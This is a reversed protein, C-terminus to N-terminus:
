LKKREKQKEQFQIFDYINELPINKAIIKLNPTVIYLKPTSQIDYEKRFASQGRMDACTVWDKHCNKSVFTRFTSDTQETSVAFVGVGLAQLSDAYLRNLHPIEKQCHGCDSNWFVLITYKNKSLFNHFLYSKGLTDQVLFNPATKGILTPKIADVRNKLETISKEEAWWAKGNLFYKEAMDVYIAEYGMIDSKAYKSFLETACFQYMERNAKAKNMIIDVYKIISDPEPSIYNNFFYM